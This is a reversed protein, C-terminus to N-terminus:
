TNNIDVCIKGLMFEKLISEELTEFDFYQKSGTSQTLQPIWFDDYDFKSFDVANVIYSQLFQELGIPKRMSSRDILFDSM